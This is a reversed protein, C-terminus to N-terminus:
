HPKIVMSAARQTGLIHPIQELGLHRCHNLLIQKYSTGRCLLDFTWFNFEILSLGYIPHSQTSCDFWISCWVKTHTRNGFWDFKILCISGLRVWDMLNHSISNPFRVWNLQVCNFPNCKIAEPLGICLLGMFCDWWLM